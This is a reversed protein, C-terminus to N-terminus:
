AAVLARKLAAYKRILDQKNYRIADPLLTFVIPGNASLFASVNLDKLIDKIKDLTDPDLYQSLSITVIEAMPYYTDWTYEKEDIYTVHTKAEIQKLQERESSRAFVFIETNKDLHKSLEKSFKGTSTNIIVLNELFRKYKSDKRLKGIEDFVNLIMSSNANGMRNDFALVVKRTTLMSLLKDRFSYATGETAAMDYTFLSDAAMVDPKEDAPRATGAHVETRYGTIILVTEREGSSISVRDFGARTFIKGLITNELVERHDSNINEGDDLARNIARRYCKARIEHETYRGKAAAGFNKVESEFLETYRDPLADLIMKLTEENDIVGEVSTIFPSLARVHDLLFTGMGKRRHDPEVEINAIVVGNGHFAYIIRAIPTKTEKEFATIRYIEYGAKEQGWIIQPPFLIYETGDLLAGTEAGRAMATGGLLPAKNARRVKEESSRRSSTRMEIISKDPAIVAEYKRYTNSGKFSCPIIWNDGEKRKGASKNQRRFDFVYGTEDDDILTLYPSFGEMLEDKLEEEGNIQSLIGRLKSETKARYQIAPTVLPACPTQVQLGASVETFIANFLFVVVITIAM